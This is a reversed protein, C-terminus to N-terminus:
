GALAPAPAAPAQLHATLPAPQALYQVKRGSRVRQVLQAKELAGIVQSVRQQSFGIRAAIEAQPIQPNALLIEHVRRVTDRRLLAIGAERGRCGSATAFVCRRGGVRHVVIFGSHALKGVHHALNAWRLGLAKAISNMEIGPQVRVMELIMQRRPHRLVKEPVLTTFLALAVRLLITVGGVAVIAGGLGLLVLPLRSGVAPAAARAGWAQGNVDVFSEPAWSLQFSGDSGWREINGSLHEDGFSLTGHAAQVEIQGLLQFSSSRLRVSDAPVRVTVTRGDLEVRLVRTVAGGGPGEAFTGTRFRTETGDPSRHVLDLGYLYTYLPNEASLSAMRCDAEITRETRLVSIPGEGSRKSDEPFAIITGPNEITCQVPQGELRGPLKRIGGVLFAQPSDGIAEVFLTGNLLRADGSSGSIPPHVSPVVGDIRHEILRFFARESRLIETAPAVSRPVSVLAGSNPSQQLSATLVGEVTAPTTPWRLQGDVPLLSTLGDAHVTSAAVLMAFLLLPPALGSTRRLAPATRAVPLPAHNSM